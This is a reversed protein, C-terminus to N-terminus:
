PVGALVRNIGSANWSSNFPSNFAGGPTSVLLSNTTEFVASMRDTADQMDWLLSLDDFWSYRCTVVRCYPTSLAMNSAVLTSCCCLIALFLSRM